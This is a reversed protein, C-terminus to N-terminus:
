LSSRLMWSTKEHFQLRQTILDETADDNAGDLAALIRRASAALLEHDRALDAVMESASPVGTAEKVQAIKTFDAFSGPAYTGLARIREAIVDAATWMDTYQEEFMAHLSFFQPGTVNWHYGHSKVVLTYTDALFGGLLDATSQNSM